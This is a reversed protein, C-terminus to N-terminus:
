SDDDNVWSKTEESWRWPGTSTPIPVPPEWEWSDESFVWSEYRQRPLFADRDPLYAAGITAYARRAGGDISTRVWRGEGFKKLYEASDQDSISDSVVIVNVVKNNDDINAFLSM